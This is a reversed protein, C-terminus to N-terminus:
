DKPLKHGLETMVERIAASAGDHIRKDLVGNTQTTIKVLAADQKDLRTSNHVSVGGAGALVTVITVLASTDVGAVSLVVYAALVLGALVVLRWTLAGAVASTM